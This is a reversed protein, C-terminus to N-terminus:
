EMAAILWGDVRLCNDALTHPVPSGDLYVSITDEAPDFGLIQITEQFEINGSVSITVNDYGAGLFLVTDQLPMSSMVVPTAPFVDFGALSDGSYGSLEDRELVYDM